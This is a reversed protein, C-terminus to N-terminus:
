ADMLLVRHNCKCGRKGNVFTIIILIKFLEADSVDCQGNACLSIHRMDQWGFPTLLAADVASFQKHFFGAVTFVYVCVNRPFNNKFQEYIEIM